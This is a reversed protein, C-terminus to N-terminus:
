PSLMQTDRCLQYQGVILPVRAVASMSAYDPM